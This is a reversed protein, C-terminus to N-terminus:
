KAQKKYDSRTIGMIIEDLFKNGKRISQRKLGEVKFGCKEYCRRGRQNHPFVGLEIRNLKLKNFGFKLITRLTDAGLGKGWYNKDGICVGWSAKLNKKKDIQHLGTNGIHTGDKLYIAWRLVKKDRNSKKILEKEKRVTLDGHDSGLYKDVERDKLWRM